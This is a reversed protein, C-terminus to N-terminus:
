ELHMNNRVELENLSYIRGKASDGVPISNKKPRVLCGLEYIARFQLPM